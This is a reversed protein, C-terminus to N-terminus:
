PNNCLLKLIKSGRGTVRVGNNAAEEMSKGVGFGLLRGKQTVTGCNNFTVKVKCDAAYKSCEGLALSTAQTKSKTDTVFGYVGKSSSLAIAGYKTAALAGGTCLSISTALVVPLGKFICQM